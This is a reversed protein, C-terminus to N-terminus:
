GQMLVAQAQQQNAAARSWALLGNAAEQEETESPQQEEQPDEEEEEQEQAPEEEEERDASGVGEENTLLASMPKVIVSTAVSRIRVPRNSITNSHATVAYPHHNIRRNAKVTISAPLRVVTTCS